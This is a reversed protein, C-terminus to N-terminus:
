AEIGEVFEEDEPHLTIEEDMDPLDQAADAGDTPAWGVAHLANLVAILLLRRYLWGQGDPDFLLRFQAVTVLPASEGSSGRRLTRGVAKIELWKQLARVNRCAVQFSMLPSSRDDTVIERAIEAALTEVQDIDTQNVDMVEHLFSYTLATLGADFRPMARLNRATTLRAAATVFIRWPRHLADRALRRNGAVPAFEYASLLSRWGRRRQPDRITSRLWEALAEDVRYMGLSAGRNDNSFVLVEVGAHLRRDYRRLACLATREHEYRGGGRPAALGRIERASRYVQSRTTAKLFEEDWSHIATSPGGTLRTGYPLAHFCSVCPWCLALGEHGRPTTNCYGAADVLPVDVKGYFGVAPRGCLACPANPWSAPDPMTRWERIRATNETRSRKPLTPRHNMKSNPFFAGSAKLWFNEERRRGAEAAAAAHDIMQEVAADFDAEPLGTPWQPGDGSGTMQAALGALAFAGVRQLPHATLVIQRQAAATAAEPASGTM